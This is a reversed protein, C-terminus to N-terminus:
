LRLRHQVAQRRRGRTDDRRHAMRRKERAARSLMSCAPGGYPEQNAVFSSNRYECCFMEPLCVIDAGGAAARAIMEEAHALNRAKDSTSALQILATKM